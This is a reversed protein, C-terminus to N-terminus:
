DASFDDLMRRKAASTQKVKVGAPMAALEVGLKMRGEKDSREWMLSFVADLYDAFSAQQASLGERLMIGNVMVWGPLIKKCLNLTWWWDKGSGRGLAAQATRACRADFDDDTIHEYLQDLQEPILLGPFVGSLKELDAAVSGLWDFASAEQLLWHQGFAKVEVQAPRIRGFVNVNQM